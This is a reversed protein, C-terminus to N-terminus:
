EVSNSKNKNAERNFYYNYTLAVFIAFDKPDIIGMFLGAILALTLLIFVIKSASKLINQM